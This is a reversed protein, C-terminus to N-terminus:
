RGAPSAQLGVKIRLVAAISAAIEDQLDFVETDERDYHESWLHYGNAADVLQASVRFRHCARQVSGELLASVGLKAGIERIDQSKGRFAFSSTRATVRLGPIRTLANIIEDALGDGFYENNRDRSLNVFPLVAISQADAPGAQPSEPGKRWVDVESRLAFVASKPGGPLRHVPLARSQEWRMATRVDRKLYVAIEKWSDLLDPSPASSHACM